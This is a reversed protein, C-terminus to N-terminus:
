LGLRSILAKVEDAHSQVAKAIGLIEEVPGIANAIGAYSALANDAVRGIPMAYYALANDGVRGIAKGIGAMDGVQGIPAGYSALANDAVPGIARAIEGYGHFDM